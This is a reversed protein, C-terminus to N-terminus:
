RARAPSGQPVPTAGHLQRPPHPSAVLDSVPACQALVAHLDTPRFAPLWQALPQADLHHPMDWLYRMEVLHRGMPWVLAALRIPAWNLRKARVKRGTVHALAKAMQRATLTLGPIPIALFTPLDPHDLLAVGIRAVDPLYGWAHPTDLDGPYTIRGKALPKAIVMDFWHGQPRTSLFDGARLILVPVGSARYVEEMEIRVRGLPNTARRATDEGLEPGSDPGYGYLSGAIVVRASSARAAAIVQRTLVPVEATQQPYKPNWGNVIVDAGQAAEMLDDTARNFQRVRWGAIWLADAMAGGFGGSGGLILATRTM